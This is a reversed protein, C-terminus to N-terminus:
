RPPEKQKGRGLLAGLAAAIRSPEPPPAEPPQEYRIPPEVPAPPQLKEVRRADTELRDDFEASVRKLSALTAAAEGGRISAPSVRAVARAALRRAGGVSWAIRRAAIDLLLLVLGAWLVNRWAPLLSVSPPMGSRDFLDVARPEALSLRRGETLEVIRDLLALNSRYRRFEEGTTRSAGGIVPALQRSGRRPNLAVIYNGTDRAPISTEYRGPATQPLRVPMPEGHPTYVTGEVQLYDLFGEEPDAAELTIQLRGDRINTILEAEHSVAPRATTRVLQTFFRAAVPWDIWSQSWTGGLDSTFAAVRGLGAQWRALLPEGDPHSMEIVARPDDRPATVVLGDLQPAERMGITLSAGTPRVVPVFPVEKILPKNIIQVSDVLVQPLAKPNIVPYFEGRGIEALRMMTEQDARDGVAITTLKINDAVMGRVIADLGGTPSQGDSLCVVRKREAEVANLMTRAKRLAPGIDTGGGATIGRVKRAIAAPDDNRQLSVYERAFENFVVVGVLSEARLSEIALAAAENAVQQQTARAGAVHMNMSGSRDLVLVLAAQPLRMERPPDLELPLIKELATGNWGGAGFSNEGGLVILGGGLDNVYRALLAHAEPTLEHAPVNDLIILDYNQLSLLDGPLAEPTEVSVPLEAERLMAAPLSPRQEVRGDLILIKGKGPTATFSEARNNDPLVDAGADAPEFIAEFRNVPTEALEVTALQVSQGEPVLIERSRGPEAGNLDVPRDERRLILRGTTARTAEMVIRVTITQGPQAGPPAELRAIQVDGSVRYAIPLVDIPVAQGRTRADGGASSGAAQRAAEIADGMTENGDSVLVLRRATDAPFMALGLRIADAISTGPVTRVDLDDAAYPGTTPAAIAVAEGDFVVLGFRDDPAKTQTAERFWQRLYELYSRRGAADADDSIPPQAFRRVSGSVDLLGIVTLSDHERRVHLGALMLVLAAFVLVRLSLASLRRAVNAGSMSQRGIVVLPIILLALWLLVPQDFHVNM